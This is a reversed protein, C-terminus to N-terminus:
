KAAKPKPAAKAPAAQVDEASIAFVTQGIQFHVVVNGADDETVEAVKGQLVAPQGAKFESAPM